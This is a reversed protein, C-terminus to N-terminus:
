PNAALRGEHRELRISVRRQLAWDDPGGVQDASEGGVAGHATVRIREPDVGADVLRGRIADARAQSLAQNLAAEGRLDAYGDVHVELSPIAGVLQALAELGHDVDAPPTASNTRFGVAFELGEALSATDARAKLGVRESLLNLRERELDAARDELTGARRAILERDTAVGAIMMGAMAGPPGGVIAGLVGGAVAGLGVARQDRNPTDAAAALAPGASLLTVAAITIIRHNM